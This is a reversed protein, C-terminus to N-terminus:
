QVAITVPPSSVAGNRGTMTVVLSVTDGTPTSTPVQVNVQYLGVFSPALGAFVVQAPVGGITVNVPAVTKYLPSGGAPAPVGDALPAEGKTGQVSGLGTCYIELYEGRKVPRQGPGVPGAVFGTGSVVIAGQGQGNQTTTFIGPQLDTVTVAVPVSGTNGRQIFLQLVTNLPLNQPILANVQQPSAFSLPICRDSLLLQANSLNCPLPLGNPQSTSDALRSGYIAVYSGPVVLGVNSKDLSAANLAGLPQAADNANAPLVELDSLKDFGALLSGNALAQFANVQLRIQAQANVPTWTGAWIGGGEHRLDVGPDNNSFTVHVTAGSAVLPGGCDDLVQVQLKQPRAAAVRQSQEPAQFKLVLAKPQCGSAAHPADSKLSLSASSSGSSESTPLLAVGVTHVTGESFAVQVTGQKVGTVGAPNALITLKGTGTESLTGTSSGITLWTSGDETFVGASYSLATGTPNFLALDQQVSAASAAVGALILGGTSVQPASGLQGPQVVNLLVSVSQSTNAASPALVKVIGYYQGAALGTQNVSITVQGPSGPASTGSASAPAVRLWSQGPPITQAQTTWAMSGQGLNFVSFSHSPLTVANTVATFTLGAQSLQITQQADNVLLTVAATKQTGSSTDTVTIQGRHLGATLGAGPNVTFGLSAASSPTAVGSGNGSLTLWNADSNAQASFPLTGGGSNSVTVQGQVPQGGQVIAFSQTAPAISLAPPSAGIVTLSVNVTVSPPTANPGAITVQGSYVNPTLRAPNVSVLTTAPTRNGQSFSTSINLWSGGDSTAASATVGTGTPSSFAGISQAAPQNPDGQVYFFSLAPPSVTLLTTPVSVAGSYSRTATLANPTSSDNVTVTIQFPGSAVPTGSVVGGTSVSLGAPLGTVSWGYPATGGQVQLTTTQYVVGMFGNPVSATTITVGGGSALAFNATVSRPANMVGSQPNTSGSLDGSWNQFQYSAAPSATVQLSTGADYYGDASSPNVAVSGASAPSVTTTLPYQTKFSATYTTATSLATITHTAAGGDSWNTFVLRIGGSGLPTIAGITHNSGPMWSFSQPATVTSGDVVIQLGSPNTTVTVGALSSFNATVNRPASMTVSQPNASGSLDGSWNAFQYGITSTATLQVSTGAAYYGNTSSPTATVTGGSSPLEAPTLLYQTMFNATYTTASSPATVTHIQGGGDSWNSFVYQTGGGGQPSSMGISHGSGPTWSFSQPATQPAGGDVSFQLGPPNTQITVGTSTAFNAVVTQPASMTV